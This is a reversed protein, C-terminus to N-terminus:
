PLLSDAADTTIWDWAERVDDITFRPEGGLILYEFVMSASFPKGDSPAFMIEDMSRDGDDSTGHNLGWYHGMEHVLVWRFGWDPSRNRYTVGSARVDRADPRFWSTLGFLESDDKRVYHFHAISPLVSLDDAGTGTRGMVRFLDQQVPDGPPDDEHVNLPVHQTSTAELEGITPFFLRIGLASAKRRAIELHSRFRKRTIGYARFEPIGEPGEDLYVGLDAYTVRLDTGAYVVEGEPENILGGCDSMYGALQYLDIAGARHLERLSLRGHSGVFLRRADATFALGDTGVKELAREARESGAGFAEDVAERIADGMRRRNVSDRVGGVVYGAARVWIALPGFFLAFGSALLGRGVTTGINVLGRIIGCLNLSLIGILIERISGVFSRIIDVWERLMQVLGKLIGLIVGLWGLTNAVSDILREFDDLIGSVDGLLVDVLDFVEGVTDLVIGWLDRFSKLAAGPDSFLCVVFTVLWAVVRMVFKVIIGVVWTVLQCVITIVWKVVTEVVWEVVKVVISVIECFWRIPNWWPLKKCREEQKEIWKEVPKTIKEEFYQKFEECKERTETIFETVPALINKTM